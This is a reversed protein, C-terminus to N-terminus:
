VTFSVYFSEGGHQKWTGNFAGYRGGDQSGSFVQVNQGWIESVITACLDQFAKWGLTHLEYSVEQGQATGQINLPLSGDKLISDPLQLGHDPIANDNM